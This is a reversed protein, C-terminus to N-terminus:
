VFNPWFQEMLKNGLPFSTGFVHPISLIFLLVFWKIEATAWIDYMSVTIMLVYETKVIIKMMKKAFDIQNFIKWVCECVISKACVLVCQTSFIGHGVWDGGFATIENCFVCVFFLLQITSFQINRETIYYFMVHLLISCNTIIEGTLVVNTNQADNLKNQYLLNCKFVLWILIKPVNYSCMVLSFAILTNRQHLHSVRDLVYSFLIQLVCPLYVIILAVNM